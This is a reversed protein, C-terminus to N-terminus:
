GGNNEIVTSLDFTAFDGSVAQVTIENPPYYILGQDESGWSWQVALDAMHVFLESGEDVLDFGDATPIRTYREQLTGEGSTELGNGASRYRWQYTSAEDQGAFQFTVIAAGNENSILLLEAEQVNISADTNSPELHDAVIIGDAQPMISMAENNQLAVEALAIQNDPQLEGFYTLPLRNGSATEYLGIFISYPQAAAVEPGLIFLLGQEVLQGEAWTQPTMAEESVFIPADHSYILTGDPKVLHIFLNLQGTVDYTSNWFLQFGFRTEDNLRFVSVRFDSLYIDEGFRLVQHDIPVYVEGPEPTEGTGAEGNQALAPDTLNDAVEPDNQNIYAWTAAAFMFAVLIWITARFPRSTFLQMNNRRTRQQLEFVLRAKDSASTQQQRYPDWTGSELHELLRRNIDEKEQTM